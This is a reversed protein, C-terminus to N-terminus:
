KWSKSPLWEICVTTHLPWTHPPMPWHHAYSDHLFLWYSQGVPHTYFLWSAPLLLLVAPLLLSPHLATLLGTSSAPCGRPCRSLTIPLPLLAEDPLPWSCVMVSSRAVLTATFSFPFHPQLLLCLRSAGLSSDSCPQQPPSCGTHFSLPLGRSSDCSCPCSQFPCLILPRLESVLM